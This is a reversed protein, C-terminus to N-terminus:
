VDGDISGISHGCESRSGSSSDVRCLESKCLLLSGKSGVVDSGLSKKVTLSISENGGKSSNSFSKFHSKLSSLIFDLGINFFSSIEIHNLHGGCLVFEPLIEGPDNSFSKSTGAVSMSVFSTWYKSKNFTESLDTIVVWHIEELNTWSLSPSNFTWLIAIIWISVTVPSPSVSWGLL